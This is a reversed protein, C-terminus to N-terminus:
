LYQVLMICGAALVRESLMEGVVELWGPVLSLAVAEEPGLRFQSFLTRRCRSSGSVCGYHCYVSATICVMGVSRWVVMRMM